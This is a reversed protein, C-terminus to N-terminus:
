ATIAGKVAKLIGAINLIVVLVPLISLVNYTIGIQWLTSGTSNTVMFSIGGGYFTTAILWVNLLLSIVHVIGINRSWAWMSLAVTLIVIVLFTILDIM